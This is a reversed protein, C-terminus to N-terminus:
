PSGGSGNSIRQGTDFRKALWNISHDGPLPGLQGVRGYGLRQYLALAEPNMTDLWAGICGRKKAEEEAMTLLRTAMGQGRLSPPVFLLSVFLWGRGTWGVLGGVPKGDDERLVINLERRDSEGFLSVNHAKIADLLVTEAQQDVTDEIVPERIM